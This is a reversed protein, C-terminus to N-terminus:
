GKTTFEWEVDNRSALLQISEISPTNVKKFYSLAEMPIDTDSPALQIAYLTRGDKSQTYRIDDKSFGSFELDALHGEPIATPGEGFTHWPRTNYIAEGNIRLWKGVTKLTDKQEQPISGDARPAINLLMGGNKSVIDSLDQLIRAASYYELPEAYGWSNAAISTDTIWYTPHTESKRNRELDETGTGPKLDIGKYSLVVEQDNKDAQNYFDAVMNLRIDEPIFNMRNDFWLIDPQYKSVVEDVKRVWKESFERPPLVEPDLPNRWDNEDKKGWGSEDIPYGYLESFEPNSTDYAANTTPYWAWNWQHHLTTIFKLGKGRIAIELERVIDRKPGMDGANWPTLDTDWMAFGDAHETVPGAFRAGATVFLDAWEEADFKDGTMMPIFDKYGFKSLPGYTKLHHEQHKTGEIYMGRSYWDSTQPSLSASYPGWHAYIGFKADQFWEPAQQYQALSEWNAEYKPTTDGDTTEFSSPSTNPQPSQSCNTISTSLLLAGILFNFKM